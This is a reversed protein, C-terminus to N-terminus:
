DHPIRRYSGAAKTVRTQTRARMFQRNASNTIGPESFLILLETFRAEYEDCIQSQGDPEIWEPHQARLAEHMERQLEAYAPIENALTM